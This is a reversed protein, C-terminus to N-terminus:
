LHAVAVMAVSYVMGNAHRLTAHLTQGVDREIMGHLALAKSGAVVTHEVELVTDGAVVGARAAPSGPVVKAIVVRSVTPNLVFGSTTADPAFGFYGREGAWAPGFSLLLAAVIAFRSVPVPM